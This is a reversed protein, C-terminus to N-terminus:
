RADLARGLKRWLAASLPAPKVFGLASALNV